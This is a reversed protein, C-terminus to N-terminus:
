TYNQRMSLELFNSYDFVHANKLLGKWKTIDYYNNINLM